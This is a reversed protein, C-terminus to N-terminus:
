DEDVDKKELRIGIKVNGKAVEVILDLLSMGGFGALLGVGMLLWVGEDSNSYRQWLLLNVLLGLLGSTLGASVCSRWSLKKGSRLLQALGACSAIVFTGAFITPPDTYNVNQGM